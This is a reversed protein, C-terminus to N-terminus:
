RTVRGKGLDGCHRFDTTWADRGGRRPGVNFGDQAVQLEGATGDALRERRGRVPRMSDSFPEDVDEVPGAYEDGVRVTRVDDARATGVSFVTRPQGSGREPKCILM